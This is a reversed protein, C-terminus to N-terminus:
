GTPSPTTMLEVLQPVLHSLLFALAAALIVAPPHTPQADQTAGAPADPPSGATTHAAGATTGPGDPLNSRSRCSGAPAVPAPPAPGPQAPPPSPSSTVDDSHTCDGDAPELGQVFATMRRQSQPDDAALPILVGIRRMREGQQARAAVPEITLPEPGARAGGPQQRYARQKCRRSCYLADKREPTFLEGCTACAKLKASRRRRAYNSAQRCEQSCVYRRTSKHPQQHIFTPRSCHSCRAGSYWKPPLRLNTACSECISGISSGFRDYWKGSYGVALRYAPEGESM